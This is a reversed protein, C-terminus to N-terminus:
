FVYYLKAGYLIIKSHMKIYNWGIRYPLHNINRCRWQHMRDINLIIFAGVRFVNPDLGLAGLTRLSGVYHRLTKTNVFWPTRQAPM